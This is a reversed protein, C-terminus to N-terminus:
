SWFGNCLLIITHIIIINIMIMMKIYQNKVTETLYLERAM